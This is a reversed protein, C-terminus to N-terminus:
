LHDEKEFEASQDEMKEIDVLLNQLALIVAPKDSVNIRVRGPRDMKKLIAAIKKKDSSDNGCAGCSKGPNVPGDCEICMLADPRDEFPGEQNEFDIVNEFMVGYEDCCPAYDIGDTALHAVKCRACGAVHREMKETEHFGGM